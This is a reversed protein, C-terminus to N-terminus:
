EQKIAQWVENIRRKEAIDSRADGDLVKQLGECLRVLTDLYSRDATSQSREPLRPLNDARQLDLRRVITLWQRVVLHTHAVEYDSGVLREM